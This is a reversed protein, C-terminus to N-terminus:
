RTAGKTRSGLASLVEADMDVPGPILLRQPPM